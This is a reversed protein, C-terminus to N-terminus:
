SQMQAGAAIARRVASVYVEAPAGARQEPPVARAPTADIGSHLYLEMNPYRAEVRYRYFLWELYEFYRVHMEYVCEADDVNDRGPLPLLPQGIVLTVRRALPLPLKWLGYPIVPFPLGIKKVCWRQVRILHVMDMVVNEGFSIIPVLPIRHQMAMRVFGMHHCVLHMETETMKTLMMEAQGGTIILPSNGSQISNAIAKRCVSMAGLCLPLERQLPVSFVVDACHASVFNQENSGVAREWRTTKSCYVLTGPFVGHPHFSFIYQNRPDNLNVRSMPLTASLSHYSSSSFATANVGAETALLPNDGSTQRSANVSQGAAVSGGVVDDCVLIRFSFYHSMGRFFYHKLFRIARPSYLHGTLHPQKTYRQIYWLWFLASLTDLIVKHWRLPHSGLYACLYFHYQVFYGFCVVSIVYVVTQIRPVTSLFSLILMNTMHLLLGRAPVFLPPVLSSVVVMTPISYITWCCLASNITRLLRSRDMLSSLVLPLLVLVTFGGLLGEMSHVAFRYSPVSAHMLSYFLLVLTFPLLLALFIATMYAFIYIVTITTTIVTTASHASAGSKSMTTATTMTTTNTTHTTTQTTTDTHSVSRGRESEEGSYAHRSSSAFSSPHAANPPPVPLTDLASHAAGLAGSGDHSQGREEPRRADGARKKEEEDDKEDEEEDEDAKGMLTANSELSSYRNHLSYSLTKSHDPPYADYDSASDWRGWDRLRRNAAAGSTTNSAAAGGGGSTTAVSESPARIGAPAWLLPKWMEDGYCLGDASDGQCLAAGNLLLKLPSVGFWDAERRLSLLGFMVALVIAAACIILTGIPDSVAIPHVGSTVMHFSSSSSTAAAAASAIRRVRAFLFAVSLTLATLLGTASRRTMEPATPDFRPLSYLLLLQAVVALGALLAFLWATGRQDVVAILTICVCATYACWALSQYLVFRVGGVFPMFLAYHTTKDYMAAGYMVHLATCNLTLLIAGILAFILSSIPQSVALFIASVHAVLGSLCILTCVHCAEHYVERQAPTM